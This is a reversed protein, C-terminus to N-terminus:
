RMRRAVIASGVVLGAIMSGYQMGDNAGERFIGPTNPAYISTKLFGGMVGCGQTIIVGAVVYGLTDSLSFKQVSGLCASTAVGVGTVLSTSIFKGRPGLIYRHEFCNNKVQESSLFSQVIDKGVIQLSAWAVAIKASEVAVLHSSCIHAFFIFSLVKKTIM